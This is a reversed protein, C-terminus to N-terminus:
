VEIKGIKIRNYKQRHGTKVRYNKKAKYKFIIQKEGKVEEVFSAKVKAGKVTPEGIEVKDNDKILLVDDFVLEKSKEADILEIDLIDDECVLYQKGGTRIVAQKQNKETKKEAM